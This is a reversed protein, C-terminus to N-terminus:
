ILKIKSLLNASFRTNGYFNLHLGLRGLHDRKINDNNIIDVSMKKIANKVAVLIKNAKANDARLMPLSLTVTSNPLENEIYEKLNILQNVIANSDSNVADNTGVHLIVHSPKKRLLPKVYDHMDKVTSGPFNRVKVNSPMKREEVGNLMSDGVILITGPRWLGQQQSQGKQSPPLNDKQQPQQSKDSTSQSNQVQQQQQQQNQQQQPQVRESYPQKDDLHVSQNVSQSNAKGLNGKNQKSGKKRNQNKGQEKEQPKKLSHMAEAKSKVLHEEYKERKAKVYAQLQSEFSPTTQTEQTEPPEPAPQHSCTEPSYEQPSLTCTEQANELSRQQSGLSELNPQVKVQSSKGIFDIITELEKIRTDKYGHDDRLIEITNRLMRNLIKEDRLMEIHNNLTDAMKGMVDAFSSFESASHARYPPPPSQADISKAKAAHDKLGNCEDNPTKRDFISFEPCGNTSIKEPTRVGDLFELFSDQLTPKDVIEGEVSELEDDGESIEYDESELENETDEDSKSISQENGRENEGEKAEGQVKNGECSKNTEKCSKNIKYSAPGDDYQKLKLLGDKHMRSLTEVADHKSLGSNENVVFKCIRELDTRKKSKKEIHEIADYIQSEISPIKM